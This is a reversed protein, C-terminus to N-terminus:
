MAVGVQQPHQQQQQKRNMLMQYFKESVEM